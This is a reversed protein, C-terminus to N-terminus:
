QSIIKFEVRRNLQRGEDTANSAIPLHFSYGVSTLRSKDIGGVEVLYDAVAKARNRSLRINYEDSGKNDTHGRIEIKMNPDENLFRILNSLEAKSEPRLVAKDFDFYINHLVVVRGVKAPTLLINKEVEKYAAEAPVVFRESHFSYNKAYANLNYDTGAQIIVKYAGDSKTKGVYKEEDTKSDSIRIVSEVPTCSKIDYIKIGLKPDITYKTCTEIDAVIGYVLTLGKPQIIAPIPVSYIDELGLTDSRTSSFYALDGSGPITFYMDKDPSNIGPGLNIPPSFGQGSIKSLFLDASGFGGRGDSSFYLSQGDWHMFVYIENDATNINPGLNKPETWNGKDDKTSFWIDWGGLGGPRDSCFYLVKGDSSISANADNYKSNIPAGLNKPTSWKDGERNTVYIDCRGLGDKRNCGTFFMTQEDPTFCDPGENLETNFPQGLNVPEGWEGATKHSVWGDQGGFGGARDSTFYLSKGDASVIPGFDSYKSNVTPGLNRPGGIDSKLSMAVIVLALIVGSKLKWNGM